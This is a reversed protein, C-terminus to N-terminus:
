YLRYIKNDEINKYVTYQIIKIRIFLLIFLIMQKGLPVYRM